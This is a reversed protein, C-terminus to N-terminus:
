RGRDWFGPGTPGSFDGTAIAYGDDDLGLPLQPLPRAAPGFVVDAGRMVDFTSQHCPCLLQGLETQYLGVPCGVHTCIKSYAVLNEVTWDERGPDPVFDQDPDLRILLTPADASDTHGQPYGTIFGGPEIDGPRVPSGDERVVRVGGGRFATEKLGKGPRPGLSRVPFVAAVGLAACAGGATAVLIRRSRLTSEGAQFDDTFAAVEEETSALPHREEEVEDGPMFHKAWLVIGVGIGGLAVALLVGEAQPQGGQWYVAALAIAAVISAVFCLAAQLEVREGRRTLVDDGATARRAVNSEYRVEGAPDGPTDGPEGDGPRVDDSVVPEETDAPDHRDV